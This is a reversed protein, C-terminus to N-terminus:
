EKRQQLKASKVRMDAIERELKQARGRERSQKIQRMTTVITRLLLALLAGLIFAGLLAVIVNTGIRRGFFWWLEVPGSNMFLFLLTYIALLALVIVKTWIRIKLFTDSAAM